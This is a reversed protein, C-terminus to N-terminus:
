LRMESTVTRVSGNGRVDEPFILVRHLRNLKNWGHLFAADFMVGDKEIADQCIRAPVIHGDRFASTKDGIQFTRAPAVDYEVELRFIRERVECARRFKPANQGCFLGIDNTNM